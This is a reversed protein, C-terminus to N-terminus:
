LNQVRNSGSIGLSSNSKQRNCYLRTTTCIPMTFLYTATIAASRCSRDRGSKSPKWAQSSASAGFTTVIVGARECATSNVDLLL